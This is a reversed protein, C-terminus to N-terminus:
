LRYELHYGDERTDPFHRRLVSTAKFGLSRLFQQSALNSERVVTIIRERRSAKLKSSLHFVMRGGIGRRRWAPAVALNVLSLHDPHRTYLFFGLVHQASPSSPCQVAAVNGVNDKSRLWRLFDVEQWPDEFSDKEIALVDNLDSRVM